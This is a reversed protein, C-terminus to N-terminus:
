VILSFAPRSCCITVLLDSARAISAGEQRRAPSFWNISYAEAACILSCLPTQTHAWTLTKRVDQPCIASLTDASKRYGCVPGRFETYPLTFVVAFGM